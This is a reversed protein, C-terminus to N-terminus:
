APFHELKGLRQRLRANEIAVAAQPALMELTAQDRDTFLRDATLESVSLVGVVSDNYLLPVSLSAYLSIDSFIGSKGEWNRYSKVRMSQRMTFVRGSLDDGAPLQRGVLNIPGGDQAEIKLLSGEGSISILALDSDLLLRAQQVVTTLVQQLDQSRILVQSVDRLAALQVKQIILPNYLQMRALRYGLIISSVVSILSSFGIERLSPQLLSLTQGALFLVIALLIAPQGIRKRYFWAALFTLGIYCLMTLAGVIGTLSYTGTPLPGTSFFQGNWLPWQFLIFIVVGARALVLPAQKMMGAATIVLSFASLICWAFGSLAFNTVITELMVPYHLILGALTFLVWLTYFSLAGLFQVVARGMKDGPHQWFALMLASLTVALTLLNATFLVFLLLPSM